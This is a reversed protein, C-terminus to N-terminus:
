LPILNILWTMFSHSRIMSARGPIDVVSGIPYSDPPHLPLFYGPHHAIPLHEHFQFVFYEFCNDSWRHCVTWFTPGYLPFVLVFRIWGFHPHQHALFFILNSRFHLCCSPPARLFRNFCEWFVFVLTTQGSSSALVCGCKHSIALVLPKQSFSCLGVSFSISPCCVPLGSSIGVSRLCLVLYFISSSWLVLRGQVLLHYQRTKHTGRCFRSTDATPHRDVAYRASSLHLCSLMSGVRGSTPRYPMWSRTSHVQRLQMLQLLRCDTGNQFPAPSLRDM